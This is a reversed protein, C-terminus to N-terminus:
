RPVLETLSVENASAVASSGGGHSAGQRPEPEHKGTVVQLNVLFIHLEETFNM